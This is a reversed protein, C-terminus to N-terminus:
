LYGWRWTARGGLTFLTTAGGFSALRAEVGWSTKRSTLVDLGGGLVVVFESGQDIPGGSALIGGVGAFGYPVCKLVDFKFLVGVDVLGAYSEASQKGTNGGHFTNGVLEGRLSVDTGLDHEYMAGLTGGIDPTIAPPQMSGMKKGPTSFTAWGAGASLASDAHATTSALIAPLALLARQTM